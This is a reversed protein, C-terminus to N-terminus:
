VAVRYIHLCTDALWIADVIENSIKFRLSFTVFAAAIVVFISVLYEKRALRMAAMAMLVSALAACIGFGFRWEPRYIFIQLMGLVGFLLANLFRSHGPPTYIM